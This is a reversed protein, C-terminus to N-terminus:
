RSWHWRVIPPTSHRDIFVFATGDSGFNVFDVGYSQAGHEAIVSMPSSAAPPKTPAHHEWETEGAIEKYISVTCGVVDAPPAAGDIYVMQHIQLLFEFPPCTISSPDLTVGNGTWYPVGGAKTNWRSDFGFPQAIDDPLNMHDGDDYFSSVQEPPVPDDHPEWGSIWVEGNISQNGDEDPPQETLGHGIEECRLIVAECGGAGYSLCLLNACFFLHLVGGASGLDIAPPDHELQAVMSMPYFCDPCVPWRAQPFGWPRGGLKSVLRDQPQQLAALEFTPRYFRM